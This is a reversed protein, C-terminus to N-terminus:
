AFSQYNDLEIPEQNSSRGTIKNYLRLFLCRSVHYLESRIISLLILVGLILILKCISVVHMLDKNIYEPCQLKYGSPTRLVDCNM